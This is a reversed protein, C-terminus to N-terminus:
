AAWEPQEEPVDDPFCQGCPEGLSDPDPVSVEDLAAPIKGEAILKRISKQHKCGQPREPCYTHDPCDCSSLDLPLDYVKVANAESDWGTLRYGSGTYTLYLQSEVPGRKTQAIILIEGTRDNVDGVPRLLKVTGSIPELPKRQRPKRTATTTSM